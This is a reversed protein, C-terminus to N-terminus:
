PQGYPPQGYGYDEPWPPRAGRDVPRPRPVPPPQELPQEGAPILLEGRATQPDSLPTVRRRTALTLGLYLLGAITTTLTGVLPDDAQVWGYGAAVAIGAKVFDLVVVPEPRRTPM